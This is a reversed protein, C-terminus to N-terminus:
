DSEGITNVASVKFQYYAGPLLEPMLSNDKFWEYEGYTTDTLTYFLVLGSEGADWYVKYDIISDYNENPM